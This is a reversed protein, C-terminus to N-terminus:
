SERDSGNGLYWAALRAAADRLSVPPVYGTARQFHVISYEVSTVLTDLRHRDVVSGRARLRCTLEWIGVGVRAVQTPISIFRPRNGLAGALAEVIERLTYSREDGVIFTGGFCRQNGIALRVAEVLNGVYTFPILTEGGRPLPIVRGSAVRCLAAALPRGEGFVSTPRLTTIALRSGFARLELEARAKSTAYATQPSRADRETIGRGSWRGMAAVSSIHILQAAGSQAAAEAISRVTDVNAREFREIGRQTREGMGTYGAANIVTDGPMLLAAVAETDTLDADARRLPVVAGGLDRVLTSGIFGGAGAIVVRTV